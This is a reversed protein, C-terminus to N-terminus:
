LPGIVACHEIQCTTITSNINNRACVFDDELYVESDAVSREAFEEVNVIELLTPFAM